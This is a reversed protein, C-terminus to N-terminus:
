SPRDLMVGPQMPVKKPKLATRVYKQYEEIIERIYTDLNIDIWDPGQKIEIRLFSTINEELTINFDRTYERIFERKLKESTSAHIMDDVYMGHIIWDEGDRKMVITKESKVALYGRAEM